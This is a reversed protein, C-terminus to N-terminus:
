PNDLNFDALASLIAESSVVELEHLSQYPLAEGTSRNILGIACAAAKIKGKSKSALQLLKFTEMELNSAEPDIEEVFQILRENYDEFLDGIRGQAAYFTEATINVGEKVKENSLKSSLKTYLLDKLSADADVPSTLRYPEDNSNSPCYDYNQQIFRAQKAVVITGAPWSSKLLGTTGLRIMAVNGHVYFTAERVVFDMMAIGMGTVIISIPVGKYTGTYTTFMRESKVIKTSEPDDFLRAIREARGADGVSLIRNAVDGAKVGLHM